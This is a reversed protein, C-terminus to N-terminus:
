WREWEYNNMLQCLDLLYDFSPLEIKVIFTKGCVSRAKYNPGDRKLVKSVRKNIYDKESVKLGM